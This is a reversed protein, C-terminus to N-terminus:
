HRCYERFHNFIEGIEGVLGSRVLGKLFRNVIQALEVPKRFKINFFVVMLNLFQRTKRVSRAKLHGVNTIFSIGHVGVPFLQPKIIFHFEEIM